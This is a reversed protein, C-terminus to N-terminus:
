CYKDLRMDLGKWRCHTGTTENPKEFFFADTQEFGVQCSRLGLQKWLARPFEAFFSTGV